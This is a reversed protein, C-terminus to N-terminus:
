PTATPRGSPASDPSPYPYPATNVPPSQNASDPTPYGEVVAPESTPLVPYSTDSAPQTAVATPQDTFGPQATPAAGTTDCAALLLAVFLAACMRRKTM